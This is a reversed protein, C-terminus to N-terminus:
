DTIVVPCTVGKKDKMKLIYYVGVVAATANATGARLCDFGNNTDLTSPDVEIVYILNKNDTTDTTFTDSTVTFEALQDAAATDINRYAKSFSLAKESGGAVSTAQKLTIASGTVTTANDVVILVTCWLVNKLSVYDPTSTSPTRPALGEVVTCGDLLRFSM